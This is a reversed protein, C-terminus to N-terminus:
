ASLKAPCAPGHPTVHRVLPTAQRGRARAYLVYLAAADTAREPPPLFRRPLRSGASAMNTARLMAASWLSRMWSTEKSKWPRRMAVQELSWLTLTRRPRRLRFSPSAARARNTRLAFSPPPGVGDPLLGLRVRFCKRRACQASFGRITPFGQGHARRAVLGGCITSDDPAPSSRNCHAQASRCCM